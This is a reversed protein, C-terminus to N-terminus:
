WRCGKDLLKEVVSDRSLFYDDIWARSFEDANAVYIDKMGFSHLDGVIRDGNSPSHGGFWELLVYGGSTSVVYRSSCGTTVVVVIGREAADAALSAVLLTALLLLPRIRVHDGALLAFLFRAM